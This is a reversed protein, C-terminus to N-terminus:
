LNDLFLSSKEWFQRYQKKLMKRVMDKVEEETMFNGEKKLMVKFEKGIVDKIYQNLEQKTMDLAPM